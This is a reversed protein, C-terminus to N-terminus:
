RLRVAVSSQVGELRHVDHKAEETTNSAFDLMWCRHRSCFIRVMCPRKVSTSVLRWWLFSVDGRIIIRTYTSSYTPVTRVHAHMSSTGLFVLEMQPIHFSKRTTVWGPSPKNEWDRTPTKAPKSAAATAFSRGALMGTLCYNRRYRPARMALMRRTFTAVSRTSSALIM